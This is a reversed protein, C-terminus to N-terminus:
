GFTYLITDLNYILHGGPEDELVADRISWSQSILNVAKSGCLSILFCLLVPLSIPLVVCQLITIVLLYEFMYNPGRIAGRSLLFEAIRRDHERLELGSDCCRLRKVTATWSVIDLATARPTFGIPEVKENVNLGFDLLHQLAVIDRRRVANIVLFSRPPCGTCVKQRQPANAERIADWLQIYHVPPSQYYNNWNLVGKKWQILGEVSPYSRLLTSIDNLTIIRDIRLSSATRLLNRVESSAGNTDAYLQGLITNCGGPYEWCRGQPTSGHEMLLVALENWRLYAAHYLPAAPPGTIAIAFCDSEFKSGTTWEKPNPVNMERMISLLMKALFIDRHISRAIVTMYLLPYHLIGDFRELRGSDNNIKLYYNWVQVPFRRILNDPTHARAMKEIDENDYHVKCFSYEEESGVFCPFPPPNQITNKAVGTVLDHFIQRRGHMISMLVADVIGELAQYNFLSTPDHQSLGNLYDWSSNSQPDYNGPQRDLVSPGTFSLQSIRRVARRTRHRNRRSRNSDHRVFYHPCLYPHDMDSELNGEPNNNSDDGEDSSGAPSTFLGDPAQFSGYDRDGGATALQQKYEDHPKGEAQLNLPTLLGNM